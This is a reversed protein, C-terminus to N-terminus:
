RAKRIKMIIENRTGKPDVGTRKCEHRLANITMDELVQENMEDTQTNKNVMRSRRIAKKVKMAIFTTFVVSSIWLMLIVFLFVYGDSDHEDETDTHAADAGSPALSALGM